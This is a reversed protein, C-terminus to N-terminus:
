IHQANITIFFEDGPKFDDLDALIDAGCINFVLQGLWGDAIRDPLMLGKNMHAFFFDAYTIHRSPGLNRNCGYGADDVVDGGNGFFVTDANFLGDRGHFETRVDAGLTQGAPDVIGESEDHRPVRADEM